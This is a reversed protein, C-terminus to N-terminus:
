SACNKWCVWCGPISCPWSGGNARAGGATRAATEPPLVRRGARPWPQGPLPDRSGPVAAAAHGRAAAAGGRVSHPHTGARGPEWGGLAVPAPVVRSRRTQRDQTQRQARHAHHPVVAGRRSGPRSALRLRLRLEGGRLVGPPGRGGMQAGAGGTRRAHIQASGPSFRSRAAGRGHHVGSARGPGAQAESQHSRDGTHSATAEATPRRNRAAISGNASDRARNPRSHGLRHRRVHSRQAQGPCPEHKRHLVNHPTQPYINENFKINSRTPNGSLGKM